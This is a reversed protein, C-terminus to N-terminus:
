IRTVPLVARAVLDPSAERVWSLSKAEEARWGGVRVRVLHALHGATGLREAISEALSRIYTGASCHVRFAITEPTCGLLVIDSVHVTRNPLIVPQHRRAWWYAPRGRVKVASYAPPRQSLPGKFSALAEVVRAQDLPPVSATRMPAGTADGTDTQTGLRLVAEYIKDHTQLARQHKTAQGVLLILLGQAMPDLTGAHGIRRLGLKRRVVQVVDHSTVGPPKNVLLVGDVM